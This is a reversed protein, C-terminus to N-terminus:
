SNSPTPDTSLWIQLKNPARPVREPLKNPLMRWTNPEGRKTGPRARQDQTPWRIKFLLNTSLTFDVKTKLKLQYQFLLRRILCTEYTKKLNVIHARSLLYRMHHMPLHVRWYLMPALNWIQIAETERRLGVHTVLFEIGLPSLKESQTSPLFRKPTEKTLFNALANAAALM